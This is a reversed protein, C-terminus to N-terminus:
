LDDDTLLPDDHRYISPEQMVTAAAFFDAKAIPLLPIGLVPRYPDRLRAQAVARVHRNGDQALRQRSEEPLYPNLAMALRPLIADANAVSLMATRRRPVLMMALFQALSGAAEYYQGGSRAELYSNLGPKPWQPPDDCLAPHWRRLRRPLPSYNLREGDSRFRDKLEGTTLHPSLLAFTADAHQNLALLFTERDCNPHAIVKDWTSELLCRRLIEPPASVNLVLARRMPAKGREAFDRLAELPLDPDAAIRQAERM